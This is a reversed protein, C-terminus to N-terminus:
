AIKGFKYSKAIDFHDKSVPIFESMPNIFIEFPTTIGFSIKGDVPIFYATFMDGPLGVVIFVPRNTVEALSYCKDIEEDSPKNPKVEVHFDKKPFYFDPLYWGLKPLDFGEHEYIYKEIISNFFVAWRAELRSRFEYGNYKTPIAKITNM